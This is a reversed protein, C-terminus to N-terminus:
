FYIQKQIMPNKVIKMFQKAESYTEPQKINEDIRVRRPIIALLEKIRAGLGRFEKIPTDPAIKEKKAVHYSNIQVMKNDLADLTSIYKGKKYGKSTEVVISEDDDDTDVEDFSEEDDDV